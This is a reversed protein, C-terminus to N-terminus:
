GGRTLVLLAVDDSQATKGVFGDIEAFLADRIESAALGLSAQVRAKLREYGFPAGQENQADTVGDSYLVLVDGPGLQVVAREWTETELVGLAM